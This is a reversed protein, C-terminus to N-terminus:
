RHRPDRSIEADEDGPLLGEVHEAGQEVRPLLVEPVPDGAHLRAHLEHDVVVAGLPHTGLHLPAEAVRERVVSELREIVLGGIM